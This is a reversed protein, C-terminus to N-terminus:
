RFPYRAVSSEAMELFYSAAEKAELSGEVVEMTSM